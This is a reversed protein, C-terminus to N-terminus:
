TSGPTSAITAADAARVAEVFGRMKTPDKIGPALEIGSSVDVAYPRVLAIAQAVNAPRLGGALVISLNPDRPVRTWDFTSGSGGLGGATHSDLLIGSAGTYLATYARLNEVSGMPVAKIYPRAFSDAFGPTESGHFQLLDPQMGAIVDEIWSSDDDMFLAVTSVFPPLTKRISRAQSLGVFRQSKRTLVFGIADVGYDVARRADEIRTIGCFKIRTPVSM